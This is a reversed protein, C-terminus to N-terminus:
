ANLEMSLMGSESERRNKPGIKSSFDNPTIRQCSRVVGETFMSMPVLQEKIDSLRRATDIHNGWLSM